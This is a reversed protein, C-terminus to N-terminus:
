CGVSLFEFVCRVVLITDVVVCQGLRNRGKDTRVQRSTRTREQTKNHQKEQKTHRGKEEKEEDQTQRLMRIKGVWCGVVVVFPSVVVCCVVCQVLM